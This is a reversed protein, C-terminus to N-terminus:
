HLHGEILKLIAPAAVHDLASSLVRTAGAALGHVVKRLRSEHRVVEVEIAKVDTLQGAASILGAKELHDIFCALEALAQAKSTVSLTGVTCGSRQDVKGINHDGYQNFQDGNIYSTM